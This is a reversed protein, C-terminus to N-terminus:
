KFFRKDFEDRRKKSAEMSCEYSCYLQTRPFKTLFKEGCVVCTKETKPKPYYHSNITLGCEPSCYKQHPSNPEFPKGCVPCTRM